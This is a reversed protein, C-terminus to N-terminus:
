IEGELKKDRTWTRAKNARTWFQLVRDHVSSMTPGSPCCAINPPDGYYVTGHQFESSLSARGSHQYWSVAVKFPTGCSQCLIRMLACESAYIDAIKQPSFRCFRPVAHEDWWQPPEKIRSLIDQYYHNM